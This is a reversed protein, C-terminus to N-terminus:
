EPGDASGGKYVKMQHKGTKSDRVSLLIGFTTAQNNDGGRWRFRLKQGPIIVTKMTTGAAIFGKSTLTQEMTLRFGHPINELKGKASGEMRSLKFDMGNAASLVIMLNVCLVFKCNCIKTYLM